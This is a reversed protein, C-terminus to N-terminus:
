MSIVPYVAIILMQEIFIDKLCNLLDNPHMLNEASLKFFNQPNTCMRYIGVVGLKIDPFAWLCNDCKILAVYTM